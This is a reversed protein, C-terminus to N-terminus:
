AQIDECRYRQLCILFVSYGGGFQEFQSMANIHFLCGNWILGNGWFNFVTLVTKQMPFNAFWSIWHSASLFSFSDLSSWWRVKGTEVFLKGLRAHRGGYCTTVLDAIGCSEFFIDRNTCNYFRCCFTGECIVQVESKMERVITGNVISSLVMLTYKGFFQNANKLSDKGCHKENLWSCQMLFCLGVWVRPVLQPPVIQLWSKFRSAPKINSCCGTDWHLKTINLLKKWVQHHHKLTSTWKRSSKWNFKRVWEQAFEMMEMLGLRIIACKTNNGMGLADIFGAGVGIINKIAGCIEVATVDNVRSCRFYACNFLQQFVKGNEENTTGSVDDAIFFWILCFYKNLWDLQSFHLNQYFWNMKPCLVNEIWRGM